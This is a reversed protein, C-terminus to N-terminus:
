SIPAKDNTGPKRAPADGEPVDVWGASGRGSRRSATFGASATLHGPLTPDLSKSARM